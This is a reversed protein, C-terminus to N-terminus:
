FGFKKDVEHVDDSEEFTEEKVAEYDEITNQVGFDSAFDGDAGGDHEGFVDEARYLAESSDAFEDLGEGDGDDFRSQDNAEGDHRSELPIYDEFRDLVDRMIAGLTIEDISANNMMTQEPKRLAEAEKILDDIVALAAQKESNRDKYKRWIAELDVQMM